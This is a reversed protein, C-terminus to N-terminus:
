QGEVRKWFYSAYSLKLTAGISAVGNNYPLQEGYARFFLAPPNSGWGLLNVNEIFRVSNSPQVGIQDCSVWFSTNLNTSDFLMVKSGAALNVVDLVFNTGDFSVFKCQLLYPPIPLLGVVCGVGGAGNGAGPPLSPQGLALGPLLLLLFLKKITHL